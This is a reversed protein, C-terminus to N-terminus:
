ETSPEANRDGQATSAGDITVANASPMAVVRQRALTWAKQVVWSLSRDMRRAELKLEELMAEPFYLSQKRKDPAAM